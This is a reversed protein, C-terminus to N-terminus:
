SGGPCLARGVKPSIAQTYQREGPHRMREDRRDAAPQGAGGIRFFRWL